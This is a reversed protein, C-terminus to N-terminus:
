PRHIIPEFIEALCEHLAQLIRSSFPVEQFLERGKIQGPLSYATPLYDLVTIGMVIQEKRCQETQIVITFHLTYWKVGNRKMTTKSKDSYMQLLCVLYQDGDTTTNKWSITPSSSSSTANIVRPALPHGMDTNLSHSRTLGKWNSKLLIDTLKM